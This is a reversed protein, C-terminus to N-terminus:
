CVLVSEVPAPVNVIVSVFSSAGTTVRNVRSLVFSSSCNLDPNLHIMM